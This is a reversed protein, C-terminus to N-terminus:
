FEQALGAARPRDYVCKFKWLVLEGAPGDILKAVLTDPSLHRYLVFRVLLSLVHGARNANQRKIGDLEPFELGHDFSGLCGLPFDPPRPDDEGARVPMTLLLRRIQNTHITRDDGLPFTAEHFTSKGTQAFGMTGAALRRNGGLSTGLDNGLCCRRRRASGLPGGAGHGFGFPNGMVRDLAQPTGVVDLRVDRSGELNGVVLIELRFEPVHDSEIEIRGLTCQHETAIFFALALGQLSGLRAQGQPRVPDPCAGMVIDTVAGDREERRQAIQVPFYEALSGLAVGVLFPQVEDLVEFFLCGDTEGEVEDDVVVGGVFM